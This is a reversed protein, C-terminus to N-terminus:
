RGKLLNYSLTAIMLEEDTRVVLVKTRKSAVKQIDKKFRAIIDPNNEGIGATFCVADAGGLILYYAGIYKAIRYIFMELALRALSNGKKIAAKIERIDNSIESVGLLGSKRNLIQDMQVLSLNEKEMIYFVAAVDIDGSRTGMVLGELPTFGMSTDVVKGKNIATISCGNGLHCTILKLTNLPKKLMKAAQHAVFQHSTGHFGYKRIGHKQYYATPIAYHYAKAPITQHFATDFVAIQTIDPLVEKCGIIGSLNAPNHLPALRSCEEIKKIVEADVLHPRRFAEGGHVVRHGIASIERVDSIIKEKVLRSFLEKIGQSHNAISSGNEGIKEILGKALLIKQPFKYLKYKISSSGCNIVLIKM